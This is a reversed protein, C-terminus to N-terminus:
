QLHYSSPDLLRVQKEPNYDDELDDDDDDFDGEFQAFPLLCYDSVTMM